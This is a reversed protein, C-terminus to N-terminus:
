LRECATVKEDIARIGKEPIFTFKQLCGEEANRTRRERADSVLTSLRGFLM